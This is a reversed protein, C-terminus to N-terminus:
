TLLVYKRVCNSQPLANCPQLTAHLFYNPYVWFLIWFWIIIMVIGSGIGTDRVTLVHQETAVM